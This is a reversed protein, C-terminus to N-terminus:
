KHVTLRALSKGRLPWFRLHISALLAQPGAHLLRLYESLFILTSVKHNAPLIIPFKQHDPLTSNTLRGHVRILGDSCMVPNLLKLRSKASVRQGLKLDQIDKPFMAEQACRIWFHEANRVELVTICKTKEAFQQWRVATHHKFRFVWATIRTLRRWSFYRELLEYVHINHVLALKLPSIEPLEENLRPLQPWQDKDAQLWQPGQWWKSNPALLTEPTILSILDAPNDSTPVHRWQEPKSLDHIQAIRNAVFTKLQLSGTIWGLVITSDTWLVIDAQRTSRATLSNSIAVRDGNFVEILCDIEGPKHFQPDALQSQINSPITINNTDIQHSPLKSSIVPLAHFIIPTSYQNYQSSLTASSLRKAHMRNAGIGAITISNGSSKLQLRKACAQTIFHLQAGNDLVARCPQREGSADNIYVISTSLMAYTPVSSNSTVSSQQAYMVKSTSPEPNDNSGSVDEHLTTSHKRGCKKCCGLRCQKASHGTLLCNFCLMLNSVANRRESVAKNLFEECHYLRHSGSCLPCKPMQYPKTYSNQNALLAKKPMPKFSNANSKSNHANDSTKDVEGVEYASVRSALFNEITTFKPLKKSKLSLKWEGVTIPDLKCCVLTVLWADWQDVPQQLAKLSRYHSVIHHHLKRLEVATPQQVQSTQFLSRIHSQIILSKNEYQDVLSDYAMRYNEGTTPIAQIVEVASGHLSAKLYQLRQVNSLSPNNHFTANFTDIFSSWNQLTGDFSPAPIPPLRMSARIITNGKTESIETAPPGYKELLDLITAKVTCYDDEVTERCALMDETVCNHIEIEAQHEEFLAMYENLRTLRVRLQNCLHIVSSFREVYKKVIGISRM